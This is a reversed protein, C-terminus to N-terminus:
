EPIVFLNNKFLYISMAIISIYTKISPNEGDISHRYVSISFYILKNWTSNPIRSLFLLM